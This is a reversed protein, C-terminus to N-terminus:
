ARPGHLPAGRVARRLLTGAWRWGAGTLAVGVGLTAVAAGGYVRAVPLGILLALLPGTLPLLSLLTMSARPGALLAARRDRARVRGRIVAAAGAAAPAAPAGSEESLQWAAGLFALEEAGPRRREALVAAVEGVAAGVSTGEDRARAVAQTVRAWPAATAGQPEAGVECALVAAEGPSLGARLGLAALEALEAM